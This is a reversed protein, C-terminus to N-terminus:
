ENNVIDFAGEAHIIAQAIDILKMRKSSALKQLQRFADGETLRASKMLIGKAREIIKRDTLAMRLDQNEKRLEIFEESRRYVLLITPGLDQARLPEVMWAMIHDLAAAEVLELDTKPTVIIGPIPNEKGILTLARIGDMDPMRVGSIVVDPVHKECAHIIGEGSQVADVIQHGLSQVARDITALTKPNSHAILIALSESEM